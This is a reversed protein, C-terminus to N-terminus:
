PQVQLQVDKPFPLSTEKQYRQRQVTDRLLRWPREVHHELNSGFRSPDRDSSRGGGTAHIVRDEGDVLTAWRM